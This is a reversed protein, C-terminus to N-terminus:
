TPFDEPYPTVNQIRTPNFPYLQFGPADLHYEWIDRTDYDRPWSQPEFDGTIIADPYGPVKCRHHWKCRFPNGSEDYIVQVTYDGTGRREDTYTYNGDANLWADFRDDMTVVTQLDDSQILYGTACPINAPMGHTARCRLPFGYHGPVLVLPEKCGVKALETQRKDHAVFFDRGGKDYSYGELTDGETDDMEWPSLWTASRFITYDEHVKANDPPRYFRGVVSLGTAADILFKSRYCSRLYDVIM